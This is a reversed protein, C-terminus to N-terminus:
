EMIKLRSCYSAKPPNDWKSGNILYQITGDSNEILRFVRNCHKCKLNKVLGVKPQDIKHGGTRAIDNVIKNYEEQTM